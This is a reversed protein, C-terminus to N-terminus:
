GGAVGPEQQGPWVQLGPDARGPERHAGQLSRKGGAVKLAQGEAAQGRGGETSVPGGDPGREEGCM